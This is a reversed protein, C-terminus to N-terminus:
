KFCIDLLHMLERRQIPKTLYGNFGFKIFHEMEGAMAYATQAIIPIEKNTKRIESFAELGTMVPMKIDMLVVDFKQANQFEDVVEQGNKAWRIKAKTPLLIEELLLYNTYEDEAILINRTSWDITKLEIEDEKVAIVKDPDAFVLPINFSFRTGENLKSQVSIDGGMLNVIKKVISLGLGVGSTNKIHENHIKQFQDFIFDFKDEAIGIGTDQVFFGIFKENFSYGFEITGKPTFKIANQILNSLLQKIRNEDTIIPSDITQDPLSLIIRIDEYKKELEVTFTEFLESLLNNINTPGNIIKLQGAEIKAIDLIDNIINLLTDSSSNIYGIYQQKKESDLDDDALLISFGVIANLPTRIEHSMNALFASKLKDAVEAKIKADILQREVIRLSAETQKRQEIEQELKSKQDYLELFVKVKGMLVRPQIPKTIFDVAGAEIGQIHYENESYIASLFIVPLLRTKEVQRMLKVTEYGNMDPMQVDILALAFDHELTKVLAENGSNAKIIEGDFDGLVKELAVLNEPKDDVILIKRIGMINM